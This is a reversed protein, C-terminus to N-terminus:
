DEVWYTAFTWVTDGEVVSFDEPHGIMTRGTALYYDWKKACDYRHEEIRQHPTDWYEAYDGNMHYDAPAERVVKMRYM